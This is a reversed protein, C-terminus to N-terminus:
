LSLSLSNAEAFPQSLPSIERWESRQLRSVRTESMAYGPHPLEKAFYGADVDGISFDILVQSLRAHDMLVDSVFCRGYSRDMM